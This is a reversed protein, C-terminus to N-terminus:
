RIYLDKILLVEGKGLHLIECVEDTSSGESFLRKIEEVKENSNNPEDLVRSDIEDPKAIYTISANDSKTDDITITNEKNDHCAEYDKHIKDNKVMSEKIEMIGSQLELISKSFEARLEGIRIDDDKINGMANGLVGNFSKNQKKISLVNLIILILGIFILLGTM